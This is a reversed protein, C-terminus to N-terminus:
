EERLSSVIKRSKCGMCNMLPLINFISPSQQTNPSNDTISFHHQHHYNRCSHAQPEQLNGKVFEELMELTEDERESVKLAVPNQELM